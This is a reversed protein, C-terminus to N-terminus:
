PQTLFDRYLNPDVQPFTIPDLGGGYAYSEYIMDNWVFPPLSNFAQSWAEAEGPSQKYINNPDDIWSGIRGFSASLTEGLVPVVVPAFPGSAEGLGAGLIGGIGKGVKEWPGCEDGYLGLFWLSTGLFGLGHHYHKLGELVHGYRQYDHPSPCLGLPDWFRLPNNFCYSYLNADAKLPDISIYRGAKPDYYRHWNYLFGTEADYYQGPFRLNNEIENTRIACNGFSDYVGEWVVRGSTDILKQPTGLQDNQYWYYTEGVKQFIPNTMWASGPAYGYARIEHGTEDYEGVLGEDSYYYYTKGSETEKWLRRGFPDYYYRAKATGNEAEVRVLRGEVDYVYNLDGIVPMTRRSLDGNEDYEFSIKSYSVLENNNNYVWAGDVGAASTRNGVRDYAYSENSGDTGAVQTLHHLNDYRYSFDRGDIKQTSINGAPTYTYEHYALSNGGPDNVGISETRMLPEYSNKRTMGGPFVIEAPKNWKYTRYTIQGQGPIVISSLANNSDYLYEYTLGNPGTFSKKLGNPYYMYAHNLTFPGYNLTEGTRRHVRDYTYTASTVGDNYGSLNGWADYFLDVTKGSNLHDGASFYRLRTLRNSADYEYTIKQGKPDLLAITNGVADHEYVTEEGMPRIVKTLNGNRDYEYRTVNGNQDKLMILKGKANYSQEIVGGKPDTTRILRNLADYSYLTTLGEEDTVSVINGAPDYAYQRTGSPTKEFVPRGRQDYGLEKTFSPYHILLPKDSRYLSPAFYWGPKWNYISYEYVTENGAGDIHKLLNGENDYQLNEQKGNEDETRVLLDDTNYEFCKSKGEPDDIRTLNNHDDYTFVFRRECVGPACPADHMQEQSMDRKETISILNNAGDYAYIKRFNEPDVNSTLRGMDDYNFLTTHNRADKVQLANGMADYQLFETTNGEPDRISLVNGKEDYTFTTTAGQTHEDRAVTSTLLQDYLGYSYTTNRESDTGLAETRRTLNGREDYEYLTIYGRADVFRTVNNFEHEYEFSISSSDPYVINTVNDWEDFGKRTVRGNGDTIILNRGDKEIKRITRGNVDVRKAKGKRDYWVEEVKGSSTKTQAYYEQKGEDYDFRFFHGHGQRDVVQTVDGHSNYGIFTPRGAADTVKILRGNGDYEYTTQNGLLDTVSCLRNNCYSYEVRRDISDRVASLRGSADYELWIVQLGNGDAIGAPHGGEYLVKGLTGNRSGFEKMRGEHDFYKWNGSKDEWLYDSELHSLPGTKLQTITYTENFYVYSEPDSGPRYIVGGKDIYDWHTRFKANTGTGYGATHLTGFRLNNRAHEWHWANQYFLRQVSIKGGPVKVSIDLAEDYYERSVCNVFCGVRKNADLLSGEGFILWGECLEAIPWCIIDDFIGDPWGPTVDGFPGDPPPGYPDPKGPKGPKGPLCQGFTICYLLTCCLRPELYEGTRVNMCQCLYCKYFCVTYCGSEGGGAQADEQSLSRLCTIKYAITMRQKADLSDPIGGILEYKFNEDSQPLKIELNEARILGYNTLTFEGRYVDGAKMHPLSISAPEAVLVPAPVDTEYTTKLVTEYKDQVTTEVVEWEVTVLNYDLFVEENAAVGPKIWLRGIYEQHNNATVRYKYRGAPLDSFLTEGLADTVGTKEITRVDENQVRIQAGSLGQIPQNTNKDITGTYIDMVKFLASGIGSQTVSIYLGIDKAPSNASDVQLYFVYLGEQVKGAEPSFSISIERRDGVKLTGQYATANLRIWDPALSGDKDVLALYIEELDATGRNELVVTETVSKGLETGTEVYSPSSRLVPRAESLAINIVVSGWVREETEDSKVKLVVTQTRAATTDGWLTCTLAASQKSALVAIPPDLEVHIGQPLVGEPQDAEQYVLRVNHATTSEGATVQVDINQEYNQPISLSLASPSVAVRSIVFRGQVPRDLLDPHVACVTYTGSEGTLPSFAFVFTGEASTFVKFTREFGNNSVVLNLYVAALPSGTNRDVARGTMEIDQDGTSNEPTVSLVEGYYSTDVLSVRRTTELGQMSIEEPRGLHYYLNPIILQLILEDPANVPVPIELPESTFIGGAPIRAVTSGNPLTIVNEGLYQKYEKSALVNEDPDLLYYIIEDSGSTGTGTATVIEIEEEGTNRLIFQVKGSGGRTFEENQLELALMGNGIEVPTSHVIEVTENEHPKIVLTTTLTELDALDSHGAVVVPVIQRMGADISFEESISNHTGVGVQLHVHEQKSSSSNQVVYELRNMIGRKIDEDGNLSAQLEPLSISRGLSEMGSSDVATVTYQREDGTYGTDVFFTDSLLGQNLKITQGHAQLTIDYGRVDGGQHTWSIVPPDNEAQKIKLSSVPLLKFNLYVSNSPQSENGAEDVATVVYTHDTPSPRTDVASTSQVGTLVPTLGDVSTIELSSARYLSYSVQETVAWEWSAKIGQACLELALSYPPLPPISDSAVEAQNSMGSTSEEGNEERISAVAYAYQGDQPPADEYVLEPGLRQYSVLEAEGPSKRYLAYEAAGEVENWSLRIRGAPLSEGKLGEPAELPPLNGQYVQFSNKCLVKESPNDLDDVGKYMFRLTEAGALGADYPLTFIAQWTQTHGSLTDLLLPPGIPIPDRGAGSLQYSLDPLTGPKVPENLGFIVTIPVPNNKDNKIPEHPEISIQEIIPGQTDIEISAGSEIETGRNGVLDRGSFVAYATGGPMSESIVFSGSFELDSVKALEISIPVGNHPTISLFPITQLLESSLLRVDVKGPGVRGSQPDYKGSPAYQISAKPQIRDSKASVENSLTGETGAYNVAAVRYYYVQDSPTLDDFTMGTVLNTNVRVAQSSSSFSSGARYLNYGKLPSTTSNSLPKDWALRIIGGPNPQASLHTPMEPISTDLIVLTESSFPGTGARNRAAAQIRNEREALTLPISFNANTDVPTWNGTQQGNVLLIVETNKSARGSITIEPRSVVSGSLPQSIVPASPPALKVILDYSASTKNGFTDYASIVLNHNGDQVSSIDWSCSYRSSGNTDTRFLVGDLYFEVRSVGSPDSASLTFTALDHLEVGTALLLGNVKLDSIQPGQTDAETTASVTNVSKYECGSLNFSTVALYYKTGNKLGAISASNSTTTVKPYMGEVSTFNGESVYVAYHKLYQASQIGSWSVNIKGSYGTATVAVPNNLLTIGVTSIAVSENGSTDFATIKFSYGSAPNLGAVEYSNRSPDIAIGDTVGNFYVKYGALDKQTDPSKSWCFVLRDAFCQVWLSAVNEPPVADKTTTFAIPHSENSAENGVADKSWIVGTYTTNPRLGLLIVEHNTRLTPDLTSRKHPEAGTWYEVQSTAPENTDWFIAASSASIQQAPATVNSIVPSIADVKFTITAPTADENGSGDKAKVEFTHNGDGLRMTISTLGDYALWTEGDARHSYVLNPISTINDTGTWAFSVVPGVLALEGPAETLVTQPAIHDAVILTTSIDYLEGTDSNYLNITHIGAPIWGSNTLGDWVAAYKGSGDNTLALTKYPGIRAELNLNDGSPVEATVTCTRGEGPEFPNPAVAFSSVTTVTISGTTEFPIGQGSYVIISCTGRPSLPEGFKGNWEAVYTGETGTETLPLTASQGDPHSIKVVLGTQGPDGRLTITAKNAGTATFPNPSASISFVGPNVNLNASPYYQKPCERSLVRLTYSGQGAFNGYQDRGDWQATYTGSAETMPVRRTLVTKNYIAADLLFGGGAVAKLTVANSGSPTFSKPTCEVSAVGILNFNAANSFQFGNADFINITYGGDSPIVGNSWSTAIGNWSAHYSGPSSETLSQRCHVCDSGKSVSYSLGTQGSPGQVTVTLPNADCGTPLFPDPSCSITFSLTVSVSATPYYRRGCDRNWIQIDYAGPPVLNGSSDRGDWVANYTGSEGTMQMIRVLSGTKYVRTDLSLGTGAQANISLTEGSGPSFSPTTLGISSVGKISFSGTVPFQTGNADYIYITYAGDPCIIGVNSYTGTGDWSATYTGSTTEVLPQRYHLCNSSKDYISYKLGSQGPPGTVTIVVPNVNCGSPIFPNNSVSITLPVNVTVSASPIYRKGCDRNWVQVSYSGQSVVNGANDKGDWVVSYTGSSESMQLTRVPT